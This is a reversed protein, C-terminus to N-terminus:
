TQADPVDARSSVKQRESGPPGQGPFGPRADAVAPEGHWAVESAVRSLRCVTRPRVSFGTSPNSSTASRREAQSLPANADPRSETTSSKATVSEAHQQFFATSWPVARVSRGYRRLFGLKPLQPEGYNRVNASDIVQPGADVACM